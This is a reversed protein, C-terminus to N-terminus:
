EERIHNTPVTFNYYKERQFHIDDFDSISTERKIKDIMSTSLYVLVFLLYYVALRFITKRTNEFLVFLHFMNIGINVIKNGTENNINVYIKQVM